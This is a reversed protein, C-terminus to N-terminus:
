PSSRARWLTTSKAPHQPPAKTAALRGVADVPELPAPSPWLALGHDLVPVLCEGPEPHLSKEAEDGLAAPLGGDGRRKGARAKRPPTGWAWAAPGPCGCSDPGCTV